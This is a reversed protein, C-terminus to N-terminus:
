FEPVIVAPQQTGSLKADKVSLANWAFEIDATAKDKLVITFGKETLDKYAYDVFQGNKISVTVIPPTAFPKSFTVQVSDEGKKITAFGGSNNNFTPTGDFEVDNKFVSREMFLVLKQFTTKGQFVTDGGITLGSNITITENTAPTITNLAITDTTIRPTVVELGAVVRDTVVESLEDTNMPIGDEMYHKLITASINPNTGEKITPDGLIDAINAGNFYGPKVFVLVSGVGSADYDGMAIGLIPGAKTAKMAVGPTNSSTLVDGKHIPGMVKVPVRGSLAIPKGNTGEGNRGGIVLAPNTSVVGLMRNDYAKSSRLVGAELAPDMSVVEGQALSNDNTPYVEALDAADNIEFLTFDIRAVTGTATETDAESCLTYKVNSTTAPADVFVTSVTTSPAPSAAQNATGLLGSVDTGSTQCTLTGTSRLIRFAQMSDTASGGTIVATMTVMIESSTSQPTINPVTGDWYNTTDADVITDATTDRFSNIDPVANIDSVVGNQCKKIKTESTDAYIRYDGAACSPNTDSDTLDIGLNSTM